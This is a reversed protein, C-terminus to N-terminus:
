LAGRHGDRIQIRDRRSRNGGLDLSGAHLPGTHRHIPGTLPRDVRPPRATAPPTAATTSANPPTSMRTLLAPMWNTWGTSDNGNGSHFCSSATWRSPANRVVLAHRLYMYAAADPEIM